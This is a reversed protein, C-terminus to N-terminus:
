KAKADVAPEITHLAGPKRLHITAIDDAYIKEMSRAGQDRREADADLKSRDTSRLCGSRTKGDVRQRRQPRCLIKRWLETRGDIFPAIGDAILITSTSCAPWQGCRCCAAGRVQPKLPIRL